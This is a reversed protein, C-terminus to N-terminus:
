KSSNKILYMTVEPGDLKVMDQPYKNVAWTSRGVRGVKVMKPNLKKITGIQLSNSDPFAVCDGLELTRGLRDKHEPIEKSM